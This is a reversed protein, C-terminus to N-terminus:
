YTRCDFDEPLDFDPINGVLRQVHKPLAHFCEGIESTYICEDPDNGGEPAGDVDTHRQRQVGEGKHTICRPEVTATGTLEFRLRGYNIARRKM